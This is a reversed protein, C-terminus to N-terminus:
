SWVMANVQRLGYCICFPYGDIVYFEDKMILIGRVGQRVASHFSVTQFWSRSSLTFTQTFIKRVNRVFVM